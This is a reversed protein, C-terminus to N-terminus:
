TCVRNRGQAKARYLAEDAAKLVEEPRQPGPGKAAAGISVSVALRKQGGTGRVVFSRKAIRARLEELVPLVDELVQGPFIIAFEEGGYRFPRGGGAVGGILSAVLRLVDDGVDHGHGDNLKKFHDIDVMAVAYRESLRPMEEQLARRSPLGTLEDQYAISYSEQLAAVGLMVAAAAFLLPPATAVGKFHFVAALVPLVYFFAVDVPSRSRALKVALAAFAAAFLAAATRPLPTYRALAATDRHIFAAIEADQSVVMVAVAFLQCAILAARNKGAPSLLGKERLLSFILINLPVLVAAFYFVADAYMRANLGAPAPLALAAEAGVMLLLAFFVRSRNFGASLAMGVVAVIYSAMTLFGPAGAPLATRLSLALMAAALLALQVGALRGALARVINRRDAQRRKGERSM